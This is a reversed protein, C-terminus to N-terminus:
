ISEVRREKGSRYGAVWWLCLFVAVVIAMFVVVGIFLGSNSEGDSDPIEICENTVTDCQLGTIQDCSLYTCLESSVDCAGVICHNPEQPFYECISVNMLCSVTECVGAVSCFLNQDPDDVACDENTQCEVPVTQGATYWTFLCVVFFFYLHM